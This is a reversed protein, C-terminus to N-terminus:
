DGAAEDEGERNWEGIYGVKNERRFHMLISYSSRLVHIGGYIDEHM